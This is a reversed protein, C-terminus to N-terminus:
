CKTLRQYLSVKPWIYGGCTSCRTAFLPVAKPWSSTQDAKPVPQGKTLHVGQFLCRTALFSVVKPWSSMQDPQGKTLHMGWYLCRTPLLPVVKPWSSMLALRHDSTSGALPIYHGLTTSCWSQSINPWLQGRVERCGMWWGWYLYRTALLSVVKPWNSMQDAKTWIYRSYLGTAGVDHLHM